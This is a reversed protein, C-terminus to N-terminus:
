EHNVSGETRALAQLEVLSELALAGSLLAAELKRNSGFWKAANRLEAARERCVRPDGDRLLEAPTAVVDDELVPWNSAV